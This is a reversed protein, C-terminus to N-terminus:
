CGRKETRPSEQDGDGLDELEGEDSPRPIEGRVVAFRVFSERFFMGELIPRRVEHNGHIPDKKDFKEKFSENPFFNSFEKDVVLISSFIFLINPNKKGLLYKKTKNKRYEVM